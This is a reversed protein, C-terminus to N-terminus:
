NFVGWYKILNFTTTESTHLVTEQTMYRNDWFFARRKIQYLNFVVTNVCDAKM